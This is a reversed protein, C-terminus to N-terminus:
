SKSKRFNCISKHIHWDKKQCEKSCYYVQKCPCEKTSGNIHCSACEKEIKKLCNTMIELERIPVLELRDTSLYEAIQKQEPTLTAKIRTTLDIMIDKDTCNNDLYIKFLRIFDTILFNGSKIVENFALYQIDEFKPKIITTKKLNILYKDYLSPYDKKIIKLMKNQINTLQNSVYKKTATSM